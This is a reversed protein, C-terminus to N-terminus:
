TKIVNIILNIRTVGTPSAEVNFGIVDGSSITTTWSSLTLDRNSIQSTLTPKENGAISDGSTPPFNGYTDKWVDVVCSGVVDSFISWGTIIGDYPVYVYGKQGSSIVGGLGANVTSTFAGGKTLNTVTTSRALTFTVGGTNGFQLNPITTGSAVDLTGNANMILNSSGGFTTGSGITVNGNTSLTGTLTITGNFGTTTLTTCVSNVNVTVGVSSSDFIVPDLTTSSPFTGSNTSSTSSITSWNDAQNWNNNTPNVNRKYYTPM